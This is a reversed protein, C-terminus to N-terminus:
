IKRGLKIDIVDMGRRKGGIEAKIHKMLSDAIPHM